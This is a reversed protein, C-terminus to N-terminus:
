ANNTLEDIAIKLMLLDQWAQAKQAPQRLLFAPHFTALTKISLNDLTKISLNDLTKISLNNLEFQQWKGRLKSIPTKCSFIM